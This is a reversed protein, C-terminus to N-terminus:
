NQSITGASNIIITSSQASNNKNILQMSFAGYVFSGTNCSYSFGTKDFKLEISTVPATCSSNQLTLSSIPTSGIDVSTSTQVATVCTGKQNFSIPNNSAVTM